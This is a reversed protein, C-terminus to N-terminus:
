ILRQDFLNLPVQILDFEYRPLLSDVQEPTYTSVGIKQTRGEQQLKRLQAFVRDGHASLLDDADHLLLGYVSSRQLRQLSQAFTDAIAEISTVRPIKTVIRFEDDPRTLRGLVAESEGYATATDLIRVGAAAAGSLITQVEAEAPRGTANSIGYDLGFQVTGLGLKM